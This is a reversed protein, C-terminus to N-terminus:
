YNHQEAYNHITRFRHSFGLSIYGVLANGAPAWGAYQLDVNHWLDSDRSWPFPTPDSFCEDVELNQIANYKDM